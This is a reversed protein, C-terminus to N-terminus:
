RATRTPRASASPRGAARARRTRRGARLSRARSRSRPPPTIICCEVVCLRRSSPAIRGSTKTTVTTSVATAIAGAVIGVTLLCWILGVARPREQEDTLDIVLALYPTTAMSVALGYCAVLGCLAAIGLTIGAAQGAEFANHLRFILPVLLVLLGCFLSAGLRIYPTRHRGGWPRSDSVQGFLIRAPAVLQELALGGGVLLGPFGLETLM